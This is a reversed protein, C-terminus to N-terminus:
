AANGQLASSVAQIQEPKLKSATNLANTAMEAQQQAAVAEQEAQVAGFYEEETALWEEPVGFNRGLGRAATSIKVTHRVSPDIALMPQLTELLNIFGSSQLSRLALAVRSTFQIRPPRIMPGLNDMAVVSPPIEPFRRQRLYIKFVRQLLPELWEWQIRLFTPSFLILKETRKELVETATQQPGEYDTFMRFLDYHYADKIEQERRALRELGAEIKGETGWVEPKANQFPNYITVDGAGMGVVGELTSPILMRPYLQVEAVGDMLYELRNLYRAPDLAHWGPCWGYASSGWKLYRSVLYPNSEYGGERLLVKDDPLFWCSAVGMNMADLKMTDRDERPYVAHVVTFKQAHRKSNDKFASMVKEPMKEEGFEQVLQVATMERERFVTDVLKEPNEAISYSGCPVADFVLGSPLTMSEEVYLNGVSFGCRDLCAEHIETYFNSSALGALMIEACKAYWKFAADDGMDPPPEASFWRESVPVAYTMCGHALTMNCQAATSNRARRDKDTNPYTDKSTIQAKRPSVVEALEQCLSDYTSREAKLADNRECLKQIDAPM